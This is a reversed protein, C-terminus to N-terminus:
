KLCAAAFDMAQLVGSQFIFCKPDLRSSILERTNRHLFPAYPAFQLQVTQDIKSFLGARADGTLSSAQSILTNIKANNFYAENNNNTEVISRGDMLPQIFTVADPYDSGWAEICIDFQESKTGCKSHEVSRTFQQVSLDIGIQKLNYQLIQGQTAFAGVNGTFLTLKCGKPCTTSKALLKKAQEVNSGKFSYIKLDRYGPFGASLMQDDRTGAFAGRARLFQPRDIAWNIAKRLNVDTLPGRDTRLTLFDTTTSTHVQYQSKNTGYQKALDAHATPPLGGADYDSQGAKVQLLSQNLDVNPTVVIKDFNHPRTGNYFKNVTLVIQRNPTRSSITYPGSGVFTNVGEATTPTNVPLPCFFPFALISLLDPRKQTLKITLKNGAAVIGKATKAKKALVDDAGVIEHMYQPAPSNIDPNLLRNFAFAYNAATVPKGDAFKLNKRVTFTYTKGDKSVTPMGAAGEPVPVSGKPAPKDPFNLLMSCSPYTLQLSYVFYALAPDTYDVDTNALNVNFTGGKKVAAASSDSTSSAATALAAAVLLSLGTAMAVLSFL